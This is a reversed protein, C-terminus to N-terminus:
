SKGKLFFFQLQFRFTWDPYPLTKPHIATYYAHIQVGIAKSGIRNMKELGGGVPVLWREDPSSKWNATISPSSVLSWGKGLYHTFFYDLQFKNVGPRESDGAVSWLNTVVVALLWRQSITLGVLSFGVPWKGSGLTKDTATPLSLAPGIGINYKDLRELSFFASVLIDGLGFTGGQPQSVDPQYLVPIITRTRIRHRKGTKVHIRMAQIKLVYQTRNHSGIGFNFNNQVPLNILTTIPNMAEKFLKKYNVEQGFSNVVFVCPPLFAATITSIIRNM